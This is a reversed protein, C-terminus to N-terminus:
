YFSADILLPLGHNKQSFLCNIKTTGGCIVCFSQSPPLSANWTVVSNVSIFIILFAILLDYTLNASVVISLTLSLLIIPFVYSAITNFLM